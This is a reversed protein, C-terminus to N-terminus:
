GTEKRVGAKEEEEEEKLSSCSCLLDAMEVRSLDAVSEMERASAATVGSYGLDDRGPANGSM